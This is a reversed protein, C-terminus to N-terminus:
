KKNIAEELATVRDQLAIIENAADELQLGTQEDHINLTDIEGEM